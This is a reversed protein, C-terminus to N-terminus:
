RSFTLVNLLHSLLSCVCFRKVCKFPNGSPIRLKQKNRATFVTRSTNFIVREVIPPPARPHLLNTGTKPPFSVCIAGVLSM